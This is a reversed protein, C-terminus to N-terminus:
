EEKSVGHILSFPTGLLEVLIAAATVTKGLLLVDVVRVCM